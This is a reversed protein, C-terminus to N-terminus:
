KALGAATGQRQPKPQSPCVMVGRHIHPKAFETNSKYNLGLCAFTM